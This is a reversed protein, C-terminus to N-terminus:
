GEPVFMPDYGFGGDGIEEDLVEGHAWGHVTYLQGNVVVAIAAVYHADARKLSKAKLQERLKQRNQEDSAGVGAYRASFLGPDGGLCPVVIGSDDSLVILSKDNLADAIAQAKIQANQAFTTGNEEIEMPELLQTYAIVEFDELM